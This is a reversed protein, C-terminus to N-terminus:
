EAFGTIFERCRRRDGDIGLALMMGMQQMGATEPHKGLDSLMSAIADTVDGRDCYALAREKCWRMHEARTPGTRVQEVEDATM